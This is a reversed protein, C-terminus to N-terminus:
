KGRHCEANSAEILADREVQLLPDLNDRIELVKQLEFDAVQDETWDIPVTYKRSASAGYSYSEGGYDEIAVKGGGHYHVTVEVVKPESSSM